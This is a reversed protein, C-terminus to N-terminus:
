SIVTIGEQEEPFLSEALLLLPVLGAEAQQNVLADDAARFSHPQSMHVPKQVECAESATPLAQLRM